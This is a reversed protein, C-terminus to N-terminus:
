EASVTVTYDGGWTNEEVIATGSMNSMKVIDTDAGTYGEVVNNTVTVDATSGALRLFREGAGNVYNGIIIIEGTYDDEDHALLLVHKEINEFTCAMVAINETGRLEVVQYADTVTCGVLAIDKLGTTIFAEGTLKDTYTTSKGSRYILRNDMDAKGELVCNELILGDVSVQNTFSLANRVAGDFTIGILRLDEIAIFSRLTPRIDTQSHQNGSATYTGAEFVIGGVTSGEAGIITIGNLERYYMHKGGAWDGVNVARDTTRTRIYLTGYDVDAALYIVAGDEAADLAAQASAADNVFVATTVEAKGDKYGCDDCVTYSYLAEGEKEYAILGGEYSHEGTASIVRPKAYGCTTCTYTKTGAEGCTAEKTVVGDNMTHAGKASVETTHECNAAHWHNTDDYRWADAYTHTHPQPTPTNKPTSANKSCASIALTMTGILVSALLIRTTKKM